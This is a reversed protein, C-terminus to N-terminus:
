MVKKLRKEAKGTKFGRIYEPALGKDKSMPQGSKGQFYGFAFALPDTSKIKSLDVSMENVVKGEKTLTGFKTKM